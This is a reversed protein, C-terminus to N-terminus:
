WEGADASALLARAADFDTHWGREWGMEDVDDLLSGLAAVLAAERARLREVEALLSLSERRVLWHSVGGTTNARLLRERIEVLRAASLPERAQKGRDDNTM